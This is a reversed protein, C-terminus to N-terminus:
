ISKQYSLPNKQVPSSAELFSFVAKGTTNNVAHCGRFDWTQDFDVIKQGMRGQFKLLSRSFCYSLLEINLAM